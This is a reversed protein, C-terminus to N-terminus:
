EDDYDSDRCVGCGCLEGHRESPPTNYEAEARYWAPTLYWSM